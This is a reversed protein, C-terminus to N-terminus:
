EVLLGLDHAHSIADSRSSVGFKRYISMAQSKVTHQSLYLQGGIERFSFHTGLLRLLRVEAATLSSSGVADMRMADLQTHLEAAQDRLLGLRPRRSLLDDVEWLMTRAAAADTLALYNRALELRVQVALHPLAWTLLPRLREARALDDRAGAVDGRRIALRATVAHLLAGSPYRELWAGRAGARAREALAEAQPWEGRAMALISREALAVMASDVGADEGVEAADALQRDAQDARGALLHSIGLLLQAAAQWASGTPALVLALEADTGMQEVGGRCLAARLLAQPGETSSAGSGPPGDTAPARRAADAWREAAAPHGTLAGIWAGLIIVGAHREVEGTAEFWAFWRQLDTLRGDAYMPLAVEVLVSAARDADGAAMAYEIAPEPLDNAACWEAARRTLEVALGPEDRELQSRLLERFLGHLRYWRRRRDLPTTLLSSRALSELLDASGTTALVADCLPGSMRDLVSCRTLFSVLREPLHSLLEFQLYDVLIRDDGALAVAQAAHRRGARAARVAIHLAVPWGETRRVLEAVDVKAPDVDGFELLSSAEGDDMALDEPGLEVVRGEARLRALPLPPEGRSAIALQSGEPLYDVLRAVVDLCDLDRLLHVDDLVVVAPLDTRALASGLRPLVRDVAAADRADVADLLGGEVPDLWGLIAALSRLLVAPDNDRRDITLWGFARPDREAWQALLTTKGYGPPAVIAAVPTLSSAELLDLLGVRAVQAHTGLRPHLKPALTVVSQSSM